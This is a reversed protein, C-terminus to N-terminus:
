SSESVLYTHLIGPWLQAAPSGALCQSLSTFGPLLYTCWHNICKFDHICMGFDKIIMDFKVPMKTKTKRFSEVLAIPDISTKYNGYKVNSKISSM